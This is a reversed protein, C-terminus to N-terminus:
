ILILDRIIRTPHFHILMSIIIFDQNKVYGKIYSSGFGIKQDRTFISVWGTGNRTGAEVQEMRGGWM